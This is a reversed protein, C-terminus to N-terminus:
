SNRKKLKLISLSLHLIKSETMVSPMCYQQGQFSFRKIQTKKLIYPTKKLHLISREHVEIKKDLDKKDKQILIPNENLYEIATKLTLLIHEKVQKMEQYELFNLVSIFIKLMETKDKSFDIEGQSRKQHRVKVLKTTPRYHELDKLFFSFSKRKRLGKKLRLRRYGKTKMCGRRKTM